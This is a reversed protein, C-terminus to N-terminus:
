LQHSLSTPIPNLKVFREFSFDYVQNSSDYAYLFSRAEEDIERFVAAFIEMWAHGRENLMEGGEYDKIAQGFKRMRFAFRGLFEHLQRGKFVGAKYLRLSNINSFCFPLLAYFGGLVSRDDHPRGNFRSLPTEPPVTFYASKDFLVSYYIVHGCQHTIDECFYVEDDHDHVNFFSAGNAQLSAFSHRAGSRFFVLKRVTALFLDYFEPYHTAILGFAKELHRAHKDLGDEIAPDENEIFLSKLLPNNHRCVEIETDGLLYVPEFIAPTEAGNRFFRAEEVSAGPKFVVRENSLGTRYYGIRPLYIIGHGDAYVELEPPRRGPVMYGYLLQDLGLKSEPTNFFTYLMPEMFPAEDEFDLREFLDKRSKYILLQIHQILQAKGEEMKQKILDHQM